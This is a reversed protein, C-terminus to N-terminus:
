RAIRAVVEQAQPLLDPGHREGYEERLRAALGPAVREAEEHTQAPDMTVTFRPYAFLEALVLLRIADESDMAKRLLGWTGLGHLVMGAVPYDMRPRDPNLVQAAKGRLREYLDRGDDGTGHIAYATTGAADGFLSWPELGTAEMGPLTISDLEKGAVRYLRLGEEIQGQALAMEARVTATVFAGGFGAREHNLRDIEDILRQAEDFRGEALAAGALLSRAQIGDDNAELLDLIPIAARAHEAAEARKGLQANLGGALTHMMAKIWPGDDDDVLALGALAEELAREPDGDNELYHATWLRATAASQRDHGHAPDIERLRLLSGAPDDTDMAALVAVMGRARPSTARDGYTSLIAVCNPADSIEGVVTNMVTVAAAAVAADVEDPAPKWGTLAADVAGAVAIVRTNEGRVTWFGALAATLDATAPPDPVAVAARLADALNNEEAAIAHVAAVQGTSFLESVYTSAYRRAWALQADNAAQDEGAGVLQMRGFERVTELMRYRVTGRADVVSLLSQDVLSQVLDLADCSLLEDAGALTFGDHFVSLWRLARREAETLLNWSWDIVAVLTQHRDPASRDGGRLLSFRDDLRRDIDEVSMVRVKAAALEIALPLGDLRRVVRRVSEDELAVGPRAASARQVFLDAAADDSLQGLPFVREAAIALPARTTTVVRLRSCTVVLYAVLDAVAAIVHECNDLILLTPAQDLLQAIRARVDNRQEATLVRRGSVSDRVGLASGVEGVVDDPSSVGVLEVFHVVPQEAELGLLHALRTKGLGGPGLISTVRAERVTARLARIDEDRGVLSTAEFRLGERVPRDAALLEAYVAQLAPGPDVGLGDALEERHREYRQLAAPAGHVAATSRLLAAVTAEDEGAGELLPLAEDHDGLASLARGLVAAAIERHRAAARRLEGLAGQATSGPAPLRLAVRALDRARVLDGRGEAERAGVVADRLALADVADGRLGLRYGHDTRAVVESATQSRARSVVVQLAKGPNAPVDDPGWVEDVLREESVQGGAAVLAALLAHTRGGPLPTGRWSVEDLLRLDTV